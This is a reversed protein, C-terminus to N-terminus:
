KREQTEDYGNPKTNWLALFLGAGVITAGVVTLFPTAWGGTRDALFGMGWGSFLVSGYSFLSTFGVATGAFRRTALNVATTGTMAQPGYICFGAGALAAM